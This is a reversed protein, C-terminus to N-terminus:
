QLSSRLTRNNNNINDKVCLCMVCALLSVLSNNSEEPYESTEAGSAFILIREHGMERNGYSKMEAM